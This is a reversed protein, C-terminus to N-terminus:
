PEITGQTRRRSRPRQEGDGPGVREEERRRDLEDAPVEVGDGLEVDVRALAHREDERPVRRVLRRGVADVGLLREGVGLREPALPYPSHRVGAAEALREHAREDRELREGVRRGAADHGRRRRRQGLREAADPVPVVPVAPEAVRRQRQEREHPRAVLVLRARPAVPQEARDGPQRLLELDHVPDGALPPQGLELEVPEGAVLARPGTRIPLAAESWRWSSTYPSTM